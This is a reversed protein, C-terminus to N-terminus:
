LSLRAFEPHKIMFHSKEELIFLTETNDWPKIKFIKREQQQKRKEREGAFRTYPQNSVGGAGGGFFFFSQCSTPFMM